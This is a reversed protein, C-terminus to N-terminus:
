RRIQYDGPCRVIKLFKEQTTVYHVPAPRRRYIFVDASALGPVTRHRITGPRRQLLDAPCRVTGPRNLVLKERAIIFVNIDFNAM